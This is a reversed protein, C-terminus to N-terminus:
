GWNLLPQVPTHLQLNKTKCQQFAGNGPLSCPDGTQLFPIGRRLEVADKCRRAILVAGDKSQPM